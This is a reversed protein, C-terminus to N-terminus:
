TTPQRYSILIDPKPLVDSTRKPTLPPAPKSATSAGARRPTPGPGIGGQRSEEQDTEKNSSLATEEHSTHIPKATYRFIASPVSPVQPHFVPRFFERFEALLHPPERFAFSLKWNSLAITPKRPLFTTSKRRLCYYRQAMHNTRRSCLLGVSQFRRPPQERVSSAHRLSGHRQRALKAQRSSLGIAIEFQRSHASRCRRNGLVRNRNRELHRLAKRAIKPSM